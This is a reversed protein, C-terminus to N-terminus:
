AGSLFKDVFEMLGPTDATEDAEQYDYDVGVVRGPAIKELRRYAAFGLRGMGVVLLDARGHIDGICYM